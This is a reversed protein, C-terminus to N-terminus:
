ADLRKIGYYYLQKPDRQHSGPGRCSSWQSSHSGVRGPAKMAEDLCLEGQLHPRRLVPAARPGGDGTAQASCLTQAMAGGRVAQCVQAPAEACPEESATRGTQGTSQHLLPCALSLAPVLLSLLFAWPSHQSSDPSPTQLHSHGHALGELPDRGLVPPTLM